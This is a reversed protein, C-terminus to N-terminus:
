TMVQEITGRTVPQRIITRMKEPVARRPDSLYIEHHKQDIGNFRYGHEHIFAHLRAVTPGEAAYPGLHMIQAAPGEYFRELRIQSVAPNEKKHQAQILARQYEETTVEEPQGILMTWHWNEKHDVSFERMDPTWWLGELPLVVYDLGHGKKLQFKLTYALSYLAEVAQQYAASHNPDGIGDIMLFLMDPVDVIAVEKASPNYLDKLDKKYDRKTVPNPTSSTM